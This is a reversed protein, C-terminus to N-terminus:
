NKIFILFFFFVQIEIQEEFNDVRHTYEEYPRLEHIFNLLIEELDPNVAFDHWHNSVWYEM